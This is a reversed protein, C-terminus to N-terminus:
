MFSLVLDTEIFIFEGYEKTFEVSCRKNISIFDGKNNFNNFRLHLDEITVSIRFDILPIEQEISINAVLGNERSNVNSKILVNSFNNENFYRVVEDAFTDFNVEYCEGQEIIMFNNM